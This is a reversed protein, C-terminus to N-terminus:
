RGPGLPAQLQAFLAAARGRLRRDLRFRTAPRGPSEGNSEGPLEEVVGLAALAQLHRRLTPDSTHSHRRLEAASAEELEIMAAILNLKVPDSLVDLWSPHVGGSM